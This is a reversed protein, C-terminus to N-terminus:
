QTHPETHINPLNRIKKIINQGILKSHDFRVELMEMIEDTKCNFIFLTRVSELPEEKLGEFLRLFNEKESFRRKNSSIEFADKFRGWDLPNGDFEPLKKSVSDIKEILMANDKNIREAMFSKMAKFADTMEGIMQTFAGSLQVKNVENHNMNNM